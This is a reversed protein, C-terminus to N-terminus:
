WCCFLLLLWCGVCVWVSVCVLVVKMGSEDLGWREEWVVKM